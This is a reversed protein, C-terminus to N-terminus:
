KRRGEIRASHGQEACADCIYAHSGTFRKAADSEREGCLLCAAGRESVGRTTGNVQAMRRNKTELAASVGNSLLDGMENYSYVPKEWSRASM